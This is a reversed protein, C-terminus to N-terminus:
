EEALAYCGHGVSRLRGQRVLEQWVSQPWEIPPNIAAIQSEEGRSLPNHSSIRSEDDLRTFELRKRFARMALRCTEMSPVDVAPPSPEPAAPNRLQAILETLLAVDRMGVAHSVRASPLDTKQLLKFAQKWEGGARHPDGYTRIATMLEDLKTLTTPDVTM